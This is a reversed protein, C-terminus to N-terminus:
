GRPLKTEARPEEIITCAVGPNEAEFTRRAAEAEGRSGFTGEHTWEFGEHEEYPELRYLDYETM